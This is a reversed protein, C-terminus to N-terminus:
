IRQKYLKGIRHAPTSTVNITIGYETRTETLDGKLLADLMAAKIHPQEVYWRNFFDRVTKVDDSKPPNQLAINAEWDDPFALLREPNDVQRWLMSSAIPNKPEQTTKIGYKELMVRGVASLFGEVAKRGREAPAIAAELPYKLGESAPNPAIVVGHDCAARLVDRKIHYNYALHKMYDDYDQRFHPSLYYKEGAGLLAHPDRFDMITGEGVAKEVEPRGPNGTGFIREALKASKAALLAAMQPSDEGVFAGRGIIDKLPVTYAAYRAQATAQPKLVEEM